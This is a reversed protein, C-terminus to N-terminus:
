AHEDEQYQPLHSEAIAKRVDYMDDVPCEEPAQIYMDETQLVMRLNLDISPKKPDKDMVSLATFEHVPEYIFVFRSFTEFFDQANKIVLTTAIAACDDSVPSEWNTKVFDQIHEFALDSIHITSM